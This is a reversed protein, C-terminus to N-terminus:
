LYYSSDLIENWLIILKYTLITFASNQKSM